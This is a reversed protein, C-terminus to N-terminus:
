LRVFKTVFLNEGLNIRLMYVGAPITGLSIPVRYRGAMYYREALKVIEVGRVDYIAIEVNGAKPLNFTLNINGVAPNPYISFNSKGNRNVTVSAPGAVILRGTNKSYRYTTDSTFAKVRWFVTGPNVNVQYLTDSIDPSSYFMQEFLSDSAMQLSYRITDEVNLSYSSRWSLVVQNSVVTDQIENISFPEPIHPKMSKVFLLSTDARASDGFAYKFYSTDKKLYLNFVSTLYRRTLRLQDARTAYGNPDTWDFLSVDMFKTHNGGKIVPLAKVPLANQYMVSQVTSVPTIGDNQASILYVVSKIRNMRSIVSPTTEAAALPATVLITTDIVAAILSAGGGMSHGSVGVSLTDVLNYYRTGPVTNLTKLYQICYLMDYALLEHQTDSFQPAIVIYGYTALHTFLSIYYGTQMFFGHGFAIIPYPAKTSDIQAESGETLAPYYVRCNFTRGERQLTVSTWGAKLPGPSEPQGFLTLTATVFITLLKKLM